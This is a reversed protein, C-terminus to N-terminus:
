GCRGDPDAFAHAFREILEMRERLERDPDYDPHMREMHERVQKFSRKCCPCVGAVHRKRAKTTAGKQAAYRREMEKQNANARNREREKARREVEVESLGHFPSLKTVASPGIGLLEGDLDLRVSVSRDGTISRMASALGVAGAAWEQSDRWAPELYPLLDTQGKDFFIHDVRCLPVVARVDDAAVNSMKPHGRPIVHAPDCVGFFGGCVICVQNAVREKQEPTCHGL